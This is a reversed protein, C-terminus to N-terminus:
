ATRAGSAPCLIVPKNKTKFNITKLDADRGREQRGDPTTTDDTPHRDGPCITLSSKGAFLLRTGQSEAQARLSHM